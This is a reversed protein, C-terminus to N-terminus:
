VVESRYCQECYVVEPRGPAYSTEFENPCHDSGHFHPAINQYIKRDDSSGACQCKCHWLKLPNRQKLRKYHRCNPCLRPLPLVMKRYFELEQLIIKFATTCQEGCTGQHVCGVTEKLISDDVDKIHDPLQSSIITVEYGRPEPDRWELGQEIVWEKSLPFYEHAITENYAFPSLELPFFEGYKYVKGKKDTYPMDNMHQIIKPILKEYEEQSYRRNLVCYKKNRIGVCGFLYSASHCLDSYELNMVNEWSYSAFKLMASGLGDSICEYSHNAAPGGGFVDMSDKEDVARFVFKVDEAKQVDFSYATNKSYSINEGSSRPSNLIHAFRHISKQLMEQFEVRAREQAEFSGLYENVKGLYEEKTCQKNKFVYERNRLSSSLFCHHCNTCDYLFYSDVCEKCYRLFSSRHCREINISQYCLESHSVQYCDTSFFSYDAGWSYLIDESEIVSSSLYSNKSKYIFNAYPSNVNMFAMLAPRPVTAFLNRFQEFFPRSFNYTRGFSSADWRDGWWCETCYVPFPAEPSYMSIVRKGCLDCVRSYLVRENRFSLRRAMRCPPCWTPPPVKMGKYFAFDAPEITFGQKCNQCQRTEQNM